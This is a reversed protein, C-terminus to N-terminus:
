ATKGHRRVTDICVGVLEAVKKMTYGQQRLDQIRNRKGLSLSPKKVEDPFPNEVAAFVPALYKGMKAIARFVKKYQRNSYRDAHEDGKVTKKRAHFVKMTEGNAIRRILNGSTKRLKNFSLRRFPTEGEKDDKKIRRLLRNWSNAIKQNRHDGKTREGFTTGEKSILWEPKDSAPRQKGYWEIAQRTIDWLCWMGYVGTKRRIRKIYNGQIENTYLTEIERQGFGCNLGLLLFLRELPTAYKFLTILEDRKYRQVQESTARAAQEQPLEKIRIPTVEYEEPKRWSFQKTRNLWRIFARLVKIVHRVWDRSAVTGRKTIPRNKWYRLMDDIKDIDWSALPFDPHHEKLSDLIRLKGNGDETIRDTGPEKKEDKIVEAYATLAAHFTENPSQSSVRYSRSIDEHITAMTEAKAQAKEFTDRDRIRIVIVPFDKQVQALWKVLELPGQVYPHPPPDVEVETQGKAIAHALITTFANWTPEKGDRRAKAKVCDWLRELRDKRSAAEKQDSGLYFRTSPIGKDTKFYGNASPEGLQKAM